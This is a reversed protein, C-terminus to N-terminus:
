MRERHYKLQDIAVSRLKICRDICKVKSKRKMSANYWKRCCGPRILNGYLAANIPRYILLHAASIRASSKYNIRGAAIANGNWRRQAALLPMRAAIAATRADISGLFTKSSLIFVYEGSLVSRAVKYASKGRWKWAPAARYKIVVPLHASLRQGIPAVCLSSEARRYAVAAREIFFSRRWVHRPASIAAM